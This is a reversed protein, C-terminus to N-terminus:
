LRRLREFLKRADYHPILIEILEAMTTASSLKDMEDQWYDEGAVSDMETKMRRLVKEKVQDLSLEGFKDELTLAIRIIRGLCITYGWFPGKGSVFKADKIRVSRSASDVVDLGRFWGVKLQRATATTMTDEDVIVQVIGHRGFVIVPYALEWIDM